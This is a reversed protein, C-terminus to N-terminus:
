FIQLLFPETSFSFRHVPDTTFRLLWGKAVREGATKVQKGADRIKEL